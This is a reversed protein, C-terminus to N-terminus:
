AGTAHVVGLNGDVDDKLRPAMAALVMFENVMGGFEQWSVSTVDQGIAIDVTEKTLQVLVLSGDALKHSRRVYKLDPITSQIVSLQTQTKADGTLTLSQNYQTPSVYLGFPGYFGALNAAAIMGTITKHANTDTGWDGGGFNAATDAIRSPHNTYGYIKFAGLQVTSGNFIIDDIAERVKLTAIRIGTVDLGQHGNRRSADLTRLDLTFPKSIVPIPVSVASYEPRDKEVKHPMVNMHVGAPSMDGIQDYTSLTVGLGDLPQTLNNSRLDDLGVLPQRMVDRVAADVQEWDRARLIANKYVRQNQYVVRTVPEGRKNTIPKNDKDKVVETRVPYSCMVEGRSNIFPRMSHVDLLSRQDVFGQKIIQQNTLRNM